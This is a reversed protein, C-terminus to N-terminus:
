MMSETRMGLYGWGAPSQATTLPPPGCRAGGGTATIVYRVFPARNHARNWLLPLEYRIERQGTAQQNLITELTALIPQTGFAPTRKNEREIGTVVCRDAGAM